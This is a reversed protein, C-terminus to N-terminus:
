RLLDAAVDALRDATRRPPASPLMVHSLVTRVLVDTVASRRPAAVGPALARLHGDVARTATELVAGADTTLPPLLEGAGPSVVERLLASDQALRLVGLVASRVAARLDGDHRAFSSDVVALFRGLEDLVMAEALATRSGFENYVTQRSVEARAAVDSMTVVQWGRETTLEIAGSVVRQRVTAVTTM